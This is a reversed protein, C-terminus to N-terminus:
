GRRRGCPWILPRLPSHERLAGFMLFLAVPAVPLLLTVAIATSVLALTPWHDTEAGRDAKTGDARHWNANCGLGAAHVKAVLTEARPVSLILYHIGRAAM